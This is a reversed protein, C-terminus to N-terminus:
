NSISTAIRQYYDLIGESQRSSGTENFDLGWIAERVWKSSTGLCTPGPEDERRGCWTYLADNMTYSLPIATGVDFTFIEDEIKEGPSPADGFTLSMNGWKKSSWLDFGNCRVIADGPSTFFPLECHQKPVEVEEDETVVRVSSSCIISTFPEDDKVITEYENVCLYLLIAYAEFDAMLAQPIANPNELPLRSHILYYDVVASSYAEGDEFVLSSNSPLGHLGHYLIEVTVSNPFRFRYM